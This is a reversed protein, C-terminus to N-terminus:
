DENDELRARACVAILEACLEVGLTSTNLSLDYQSAVDPDVGFKGILYKRRDKERQRVHEEAEAPSMREWQAVYAIRDKEPALLRVHLTTRRPLVAAAGKGLLVARGGAGIELITRVLAAMEPHRAIPKRSLRAFRQECWGVAEPPLEELALQ